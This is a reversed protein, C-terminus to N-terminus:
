EFNAEGPRGMHRVIVAVQLPTLIKDRENYEAELLEALVVPHNRIFGRLSRVCSSSYDSPFYLSAIESFSHCGILIYDYNIKKM